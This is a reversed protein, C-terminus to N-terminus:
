GKVSLYRIITHMTERRLLSIIDDSITLM